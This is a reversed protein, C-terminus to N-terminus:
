SWGRVGGRVRRPKQWGFDMDAHMSVWGFCIDAHFFASSFDVGNPTMVPPKTGLLLGLSLHRCADTVVWCM